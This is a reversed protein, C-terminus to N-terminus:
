ATRTATRLDFTTCRGDICGVVLCQSESHFSVWPYAKVLAQLAAGAATILAKRVTARKPDIAQVIAAVLESLFPYMHVPYKQTVLGILQLAGRRERASESTQLIGVITSNILSTDAACIRLLASKALVILNFSVAGGQETGRSSPSSARRTGRRRHHVAQRHHHQQQRQGSDLAGPDTANAASSSDSGVGDEDELAKRAQMTVVARAISSVGQPSGVHREPKASAVMEAAKATSSGLDGPVPVAARSPKRSAPMSSLSALNAGSMSRHPTASQGLGLGDETISTMIRLLWQIVVQCDLYPKFTAFGRALLETAVMRAKVGSRESVLLAQLMSAAM